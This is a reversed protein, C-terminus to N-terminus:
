VFFHESYNPTNPKLSLVFPRGGYVKTCSTTVVREQHSYRPGNPAKRPEHSRIIKKVDLSSLVQETVKCGFEVGAGRENQVEGILADSPDSWLVDREVEYSPNRMSEVGKIKSSIGGHVFLFSGPVIASLYLKDVFPRFFNRFYRSWGGRKMDAERTLDCPNFSPEGNGDYDEHNGMLAKVNPYNTILRDVKEIVEIGNPGRDAYDGLFLMRDREPSVRKLVSELVDLNGHIDGIVHLREGSSFSAPDFEYLRGIGSGTM